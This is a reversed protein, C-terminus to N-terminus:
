LLKLLTKPRKSANNSLLLSPTPKGAMPLMAFVNGNSSPSKPLLVFSSLLAPNHLPRIQSPAPLYPPTRSKFYFLCTTLAKLTHPIFSRPNPTSSTLISLIARASGIMLAHHLLAPNGTKLSRTPVHALTINFPQISVLTTYNTATDRILHVPQPVLPVATPTSCPPTLIAVLLSM